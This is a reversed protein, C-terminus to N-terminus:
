SGWGQRWLTFHLQAKQGWPLGATNASPAQFTKSFHLFTNVQAGPSRLSRYLRHLLHQLWLAHHRLSRHPGVQARSLGSIAIRRSNRLLFFLFDTKKRPPGAQPTHLLRMVMRKDEAEGQPSSLAWSPQIILWFCPVAGPGPGRGRPMLGIKTRQWSM